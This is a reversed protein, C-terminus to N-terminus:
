GEDDIEGQLKDLVERVGELHSSFDPPPEGSERWEGFDFGLKVMASELERGLARTRENVGLNEVLFANGYYLRWFDKIAERSEVYGRRADFYRLRESVTSLVPKLFIRYQLRAVKDATTPYYAKLSEQQRSAAASYSRALHLLDDLVAEDRFRYSPRGPAQAQPLDDVSELNRDLAELQSRIDKDTVTTANLLKNLARRAEQPTDATAIQGVLDSPARFLELVDTTAMLAVEEQEQAIRAQRDAQVWFYSVLLSAIALSGLVLWTIANNRQRRREARRSARLFEPASGTLSEENAKAWESAVALRAGSYLYGDKVGPPASEWALAARRIENGTRIRERNDEIWKRLRSWGRILAEHAVEVSGGDTTVLRAEEGALYQILADVESARRPDEPLLEGVTARWKTDPAGEGPQVLKLFLRRCQEQADPSLGGYIEEARQQLAGELEGSAEYAELTLRRVDRRKWVETLAFQLLPLSGPQGEVDGLLREVLPPEVECGALFAPREIAERLEEPTMPGVLEQRASLVAALQPFAACAGLFDSRMTLIVAVRGGAQSSAHLLNALFAARSREFRARAEEDRPRRTFLEEFQDVVILLRASAPGGDLAMRAFLDLAEPKDALRSALEFARGLDPPSGAPSTWRILCAALSHLPDDGVRMAAVPWDESGEIAGARLSPLVGALVASSKGSGSPGLVALLRVGQPSRVERRLASVLWGTLSARGFFFRSDAEGFAELGRYPCVDKLGDDCRRPPQKGTIGWALREFAADDDLTKVFEVWSANLLFDLLAVEGRKPREVGPLLVPVVRFAEERARRDIAVQM